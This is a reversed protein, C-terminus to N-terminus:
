DRERKELMARVLIEVKWRAGAVLPDVKGGHVAPCPRYFQGQPRQEDDSQERSQGRENTGALHGDAAPCDIGFDGCGWCRVATFRGEQEAEDEQEEDEGAGPGQAEVCPQLFAPSRDSYRLCGSAITLVSLLAANGKRAVPQTM